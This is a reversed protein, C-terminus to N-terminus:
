KRGHYRPVRRQQERLSKTRKVYVYERMLYKEELRANAAEREAKVQQEFEAWAACVSGNHCGVSRRECDKCPSTAM